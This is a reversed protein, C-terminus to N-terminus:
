SELQGLLIDALEYQYCYQVQKEEIKSNEQEDKMHLIEEYAKTAEQMSQDVEALRNQIEERIIGEQKHVTIEIKSKLEKVAQQRLKQHFNDFKQKRKKDDTEKLIQSLGYDSLVLRNDLYNGIFGIVEKKLSDNKDRIEKININLTKGGFNQGNIKELEELLINLSENINDIIRKETTETENRIDRKLEALMDANSKSHDATVSMKPQYHGSYSNSGSSLSSTINSLGSYALGTIIAGIGAITDGM